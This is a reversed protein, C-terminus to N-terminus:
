EEVSKNWGRILKRKCKDRYEATYQTIRVAMNKGCKECIIYYAPTTGAFPNGGMYRLLSPSMGAVYKVEVECGCKCPKLKPEAM